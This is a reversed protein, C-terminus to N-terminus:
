DHEKGAQKKLEALVEALLVNNEKQLAISERALRETVKFDEVATKQVTLSEKMRKDSRIMAVVFYLVIVFFIVPLYDLILLWGRSKSSVVEETQELFQRYTAWSDWTQTQQNYFLTNTRLWQGYSRPFKSLDDATAGVLDVEVYGSHSYPSDSLPYEMKESNFALVKLEGAYPM